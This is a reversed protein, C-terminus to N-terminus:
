LSIEESRYWISGWGLCVTTNLSCQASIYGWPSPFAFSASTALQLVVLVLPSSQRHNDDCLVTLHPNLMILNWKLHKQTPSYSTRSKYNVAQNDATALTADSGTGRSSRIRYHLLAHTRTGRWRANRISGSDKCRSAHLENRINCHQVAAPPARSM